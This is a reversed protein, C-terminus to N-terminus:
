LNFEGDLSKMKELLLELYSTAFVQDKM